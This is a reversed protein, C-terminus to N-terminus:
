PYQTVLTAMQKNNYHDKGDLRDNLKISCLNPEPKHDANATKIAM